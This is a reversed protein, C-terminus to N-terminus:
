SLIYSISSLKTTDVNERIKELINNILKKVESMKMGEQRAIDTFSMSSPLGIGFRCKIIRRESEDLCDFIENLIDSIDERNEEEELESTEDSIFAEDSWKLLTESSDDDNHPSSQDISLFNTYGKSLENYPISVQRAKTLANIISGRIWKFAVSAFVASKINENCWDIFATKSNFGDEPLKEFINVDGRSYKVNQSLLENAEEKTYIEKESSNISNLVKNRLVAKNSDYRSFAEILGLNGAQILDEFSVGLGRYRKACNVVLKLNNKIFIDRNEETMELDDCSGAPCLIYEKKVANFYNDITDNEESDDLTCCIVSLKKRAEESVKEFYEESLLLTNDDSLIKLASITYENFVIYQDESRMTKYESIFYETFIEKLEEKSEEGNYILMFDSIFDDILTKVEDSLKIVIKPM